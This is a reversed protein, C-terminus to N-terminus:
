ATTRRPNECAGAANYTAGGRQPFTPVVSDWNVMLGRPRDNIAIIAHTKHPWGESLSARSFYWNIPLFHGIILQCLRTFAPQSVAHM